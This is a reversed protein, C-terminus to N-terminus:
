AELVGSIKDLARLYTKRQGGRSLEESVLAALAEPDAPFSQEFSDSGAAFSQTTYLDSDAARTVTFVSGDASRLTVRSLTAGNKRAFVVRVPGAGERACTFEAGSKQPAHWGLSDALWGLLLLGTTHGSGSHEIDVRDVKGLAARAAPADFFQAIALRLASTRAWNLDGTLANCGPRGLLSRVITFQPGPKAWSSSDFMLRETACLLRMDFVGPMEGQWWLYLPLDSDLHSFVLSSILRPDANTGEMLFAIQESCTQKSGTKTLHCHANVWARLGDRSSKGRAAILIARCALDKTIERVIATNARLSSDAASYVVLNMRSARTAVTQQEQWLKKLEKEIKGVEAPVGDGFFAPTVAPTATEPTMDPLKSHNKWVKLNEAM